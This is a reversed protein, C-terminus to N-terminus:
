WGLGANSVPRLSSRVSAQGTSTAPLGNLMRAWAVVRHWPSWRRRAHIRYMLSCTRWHPISSLHNASPIREWCSKGPDVGAVTGLLSRLMARTWVFSWRAQDSLFRAAREKEPPILLEMARLRLHEAQPVLSTWLSIQGPELVGPGPPKTSTSGGPPGNWTFRQVQSRELM